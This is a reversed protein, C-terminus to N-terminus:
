EGSDEPSGEQKRSKYWGVFSLAIGAVILVLTLISMMNRLFHSLIEIPGFAHTFNFLNLVNYPVYPLKSLVFPLAFVLAAAALGVRLASQYKCKLRDLVILGVSFLIAALRWVPSQYFYPDFIFTLASGIIIMVPGVVNLNAASEGHAPKEALNDDALLHTHKVKWKQIRIPVWLTYIGLTIVSLLLCVIWTGFLGVARGDFTLRKKCYVKHRQEWSYVTQVAWPYCIGLTLVTVLAGLISWGIYQLLGGDFRSAKEARLRQEADFTQATGEFFTHSERWRKIRLPVWFLYIGLTIICLLMCLIWTGFLGGARGTFKLRRGDIVTHKTEWSYYWCVAFPLCIGFTLSTVFWGLILWGLRQFAGGDFYSEGGNVSSMETGLPMGCSGCFASDDEVKSGCHNCFM